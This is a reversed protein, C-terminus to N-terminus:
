GRRALLMRRYYGAVWAEYGPADLGANETLLRYTGWDLAVWFIREAEQRSIRRAGRKGLLTRAAWRVGFRRNDNMQAWLEAVAPDGRAAHEIAWTLRASRENVRRLHAAHLDLMSSADPAGEMEAIPPRQPMPEPGLDGRIALDVAAGLLAAKTGFIAEVTKVSCGADAAIARVTTGTWGDDEFRRKAAAVIALRTRDAAAARRPAHYSRKGPRTPEAM